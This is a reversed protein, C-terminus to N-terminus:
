ARDRCCQHRLLGKEVGIKIVRDGRARRLCEASFPAASAVLEGDLSVDRAEDRGGAAPTVRVGACWRWSPFSRHAGDMDQALAQSAVIAPGSADTVLVIDVLGDDMLAGPAFPVRKGMRENVQAQVFSVDDLQRTTTAGDADTYELAGSFASKGQAIISLGALDYQATGFTERLANAETLVAAPLGWACINCAYSIQDSADVVMVDVRRTAGACVAAVAGAADDLGLDCAWSNGSGAPVIGIPVRADEPRSLMGNAIEHATGDGGIAVFADLLDVSAAYERAHGAYETRLVTAEINRAALAPLVVSDLTDLGVNGGSAPNVVVHVRNFSLTFTSALLM